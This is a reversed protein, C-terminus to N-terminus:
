VEFAAFTAGAARAAPALRRYLSLGDPGAFLAGAPEFDRVDSPLRDGDAVYPPNSLVAAAHLDGLLDAEAFAVDLRLRAANARAVELAAASVDTAAVDLDPREAKLALAVAGSGAGVDVVRAGAPLALAAEVLHETEPRPILVRPDVALDIWRFARRGVLYAVPEGARRRAVHAGFAAAEAEGVARSPDRHLAARDVGLAHALLLEADLRDLGASRLLESARLPRSPSAAASRM